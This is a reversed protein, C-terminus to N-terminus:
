LHIYFFIYILIIFLKVRRHSKYVPFKGTVCIQTLCHGQCWGFASGCLESLDAAIERECVRSQVPGNACM